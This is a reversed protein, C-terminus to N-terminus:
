PKSWPNLKVTPRVLNQLLTSTPRLGHEVIIDINSEIGKLTTMSELMPNLQECAFWLAHEMTPVDDELMLRPLFEVEAAISGLRRSTGIKDPDKLWSREAVEVVGVVRLTDHWSM